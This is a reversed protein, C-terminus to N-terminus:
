PRQSSATSIRTVSAVIDKWLQHPHFPDVRKPDAKVSATVGHKRFLTVSPYWPMTEGSAGYRWEPVEPILAWAPAGLAGGLHVISTQVSVVLDLACVLAAPTLPTDLRATQAGENEAAM